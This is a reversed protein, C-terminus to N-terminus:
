TSSSSSTPTTPRARSCARRCSSCTTARSDKACSTRPRARCAASSSAPRATPASCSPPTSHRVARRVAILAQTFGAEGVNGARLAAVIAEHPEGRVALAAYRRVLEKEPEAFSDFVEHVLVLPGADSNGAGARHPPRGRAPGAGGAVLRAGAETGGPPAAGTGRSGTRDPRLGLYELAVDLKKVPRGLEELLADLLGPNPQNPSLLELFLGQIPERVPGATLWVGGVAPPAPDISSASVAHPPTEPESMGTVVPHDRRERKPGTAWLTSALNPALPM